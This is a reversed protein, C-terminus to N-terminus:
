RCGPTAGCTKEDLGLCRDTSPVPDCGAYTPPPLPLCAANPPCMSPPPPAEYRPACRPDLKCDAEARGACPDACPAWSKWPADQSSGTCGVINPNGDDHECTVIPMCMESAPDILFQVKQKIPGPDVGCSSLLALIALRRMCSRRGNTSCSGHGRGLPTTEAVQTARLRLNRLSLSLRRLICAHSCSRCDREGRRERDDCQWSPAGVRVVARLVLDVRHAERGDGVKGDCVEHGAGVWRSADVDRHGDPQELPGIPAGHEDIGAEVAVTVEAVERDLVVDFRGI